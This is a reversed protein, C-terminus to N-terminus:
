TKPRGIMARAFESKPMTACVKANTTAPCTSPSRRTSHASFFHRSALGHRRRRPDLRVIYGDEEAMDTFRAQGNLGRAHLSMLM